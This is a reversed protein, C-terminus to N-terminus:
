KGERGGVGMKKAVYKGREETEKGPKVWECSQLLRRGCRLGRSRSFVRILFLAYNFFFVAGM